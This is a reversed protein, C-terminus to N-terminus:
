NKKANCNEVQNRVINYELKSLIYDSVDRVDQMVAKLEKDVKGSSWGAIYGFSYNSTDIGLDMCVVFAASEARIERSDRSLPKEKSSDNRRPDNDLLSHVIEHILTKLRALDHLSSRVKILQTAPDFSGYVGNPLDETFVVPVPAIKILMEIWKRYSEDDDKLEFAIEPLPEGTTQAIDFVTTTRFIVDEKDNEKKITMPAFITIGHEGKKVTRGFSKWAKYGAVQTATGKSQMLILIQNNLSYHHFRSCVKLWEKYRDSNFVENVGDSLMKTIRDMKAKRAETM